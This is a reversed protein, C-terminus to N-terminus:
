GATQPGPVFIPEDKILHVREAIPKGEPVIRPDSPAPSRAVRWKRAVDRVGLPFIRVGDRAVHLRLFGKFDAVRLASSGANSHAGLLLNTLMLYIGFLVAGFIGGAVLMELAFVVVQEIADPDDLGLMQYNVYGAVWFALLILVLHAASHLLGAGFRTLMQLWAPHKKNPEFFAILGGVLALTLFITPPSHRAVEWAPWLIEMFDPLSPPRSWVQELLSQEVEPILMKSASQLIWDYFLYFFGLFFAFDFNRLPFLVNRLMLLRSESASPFTTEKTYKEVEEVQGHSDLNEIVLKEPLNHTEHYFAGGGGWTLRHRSGGQERYHCYHHLDGAMAIPMTGGHARVVQELHHLNAHARPDETAAHVWSPEATCLIVRDGPQFRAAQEKFYNLQPADIDSELQVDVGWLWWGHPLALCFYSRTQRTKWGGIWRCQLFLRTFSTLGDYWDHNGPTAFLHPPHDAWPLAAQYPGVLRNQYEERTATPYVEDGGMVLVQARPLTKGGVRLEPAALLSAITYTADFGDGLDAVFDIWLEDGQSYDLDPMPATMVERKDSYAGFLSSLLTRIGTRTLQPVNFWRVSRKMEFGLDKPDLSAPVPMESATPQSRDSM